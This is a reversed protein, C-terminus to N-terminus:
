LLYKSEKRLASLKKKILAAQPFSNDKINLVYLHESMLTLEIKSLGEKAEHSKIMADVTFWEVKLKDIYEDTSKKDYQNHAVVSSISQRMTSLTGNEVRNSTHKDNVHWDLRKRISEKAAIGVYISYLGNKQEIYPLVDSENVDLASLIIHLESEYAWWKYYGPRDNPINLLDCKNRLKNAEIIENAIIRM